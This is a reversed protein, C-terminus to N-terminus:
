VNYLWLFQCKLNIKLIKIIFYIKVQPFVKLQEKFLQNKIKIKKRGGVKKEKATKKNWLIDSLYLTFSISCNIRKQFQCRTVFFKVKYSNDGRVSNKKQDRLSRLRILFRCISKELNSTVDEPHETKNQGFGYLSEM